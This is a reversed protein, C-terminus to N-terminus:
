WNNELWAYDKKALAQFKIFELLREHTYNPAVEDFVEPNSQHLFHLYYSTNDIFTDLEIAKGKKYTLFVDEPGTDSESHEYELKIGKDDPLGTESFFLTYSDGNKIRQYCYYQVEIADNVNFVDLSTHKCTGDKYLSPHIIHLNFFFATKNDEDTLRFVHGTWGGISLYRGNQSEPFETYFAKADAIKAYIADLEAKAKAKKKKNKYICWAIVVGGVVLWGPIFM